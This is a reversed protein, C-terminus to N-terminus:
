PRTAQPGVALGSASVGTRLHVLEVDLPRAAFETARLTRPYLELVGPHAVPGEAVQGTAPGHHHLVGPRAGEKGITLAHKTERRGVLRDSGEVHDVATVILLAAGRSSDGRLEEVGSL